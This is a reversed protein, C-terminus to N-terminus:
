YNHLYFHLKDIEKLRQHQWHKSGSRLKSKINHTLVKINKLTKLDLIAEVMKNRLFVPKHTIKLFNKCLNTLEVNPESQEKFDFQLKNAKIFCFHKSRSPMKISILALSFPIEFFIHIKVSICNLIGQNNSSSSLNWLTVLIQGNYKPLSIPKLPVRVM